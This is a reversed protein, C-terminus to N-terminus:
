PRFEEAVLKTLRKQLHRVPRHQRRARDIEDMLVAHEPRKQRRMRWLQFRWLLNSLHRRTM